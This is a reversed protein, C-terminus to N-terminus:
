WWCRWFEGGVGSVALPTRWDIHVALRKTLVLNVSRINSSIYHKVTQGNTINSWKYHKVTQGSTINLWKEYLVKTTMITTIITTTMMTTM